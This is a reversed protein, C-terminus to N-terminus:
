YIFLHISLLSSLCLFSYIFSFDFYPIHGCVPFVEPLLSSSSTTTPKLLTQCPGNIRMQVLKLCKVAKSERRKAHSLLAIMNGSEIYTCFDIRATYFTKIASLLISEISAFEENGHFTEVIESLYSRLTRNRMTSESLIYKQKNSYTKHSLCYQHRWHQTGDVNHTIYCGSWIGFKPMGFDRNVKAFLIHLPIAMHHTFFKLYWGFFEDYLDLCTMEAIPTRVIRISFM